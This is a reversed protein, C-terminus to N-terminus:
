MRSWNSRALGGRTLIFDKYQLVNQSQLCRRIRRAIRIFQALEAAVGCNESLSLTNFVLM